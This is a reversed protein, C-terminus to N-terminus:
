VTWLSLINERCTDPWSWVLTGILVTVFMSTGTITRIDDVTNVVPTLRWYVSQALFDAIGETESTSLGLVKHRVKVGDMPVPYNWSLYQSLSWVLTVILGTLFMNIGTVTRVGDIKNVVITLRWHVCYVSQPLVLLGVIGDTKRLSCGSGQAKGECWWTLRDM